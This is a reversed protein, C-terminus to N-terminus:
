SRSRLKQKESLTRREKGESKRNKSEKEKTLTIKPSMLRLFFFSAQQGKEVWIAAFKALNTKLFGDAPHM